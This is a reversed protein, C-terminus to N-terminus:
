KSDYTNICYVMSSLEQSITKGSRNSNSHLWNDTKYAITFKSKSTELKYTYTPVMDREKIIM